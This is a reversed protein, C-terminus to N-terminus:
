ASRPLLRVLPKFTDARVTSAWSVCLVKRKRLDGLRLLGVQLLVRLRNSLLIGLSRLRKCGQAMFSRALSEIGM